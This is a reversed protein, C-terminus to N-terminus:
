ISDVNLFMDRRKGIFSFQRTKLSRYNLQVWIPNNNRSSSYLNRLFTKKLILNQFTYKVSNTHQVQLCFVLTKAEVTGSLVYASVPLDRVQTSVWDGGRYFSYSLRSWKAHNGHPNFSFTSVFSIKFSHMKIFIHISINTCFINIKVEFNINFYNIEISKHKYLNYVYFKLIFTCNINKLFVNSEFAM